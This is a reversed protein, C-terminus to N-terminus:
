TGEYGGSEVTSNMFLDFMERIRETVIGWNSVIADKLFCRMDWRKLELKVVYDEERRTVGM